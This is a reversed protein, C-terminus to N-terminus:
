YQIGQADLKNMLKEARNYRKTGLVSEPTVDGKLTQARYVENQAAWIELKIKNITAIKM